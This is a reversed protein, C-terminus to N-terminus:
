SQNGFIEHSVIESILKRTRAPVHHTPHGVPLMSVLRYDKPVKLIEAVKAYDFLGIHVTGLGLACAALAMHEMAIGLDFMFWDGADSGKDGGYYGSIGLKACAVILVPANKIALVGRNNGTAAISSRRESDKVVIFHWCQTNAWSPSQRAAELIKELDQESVPDPKFERISRRKLIVEFLDM